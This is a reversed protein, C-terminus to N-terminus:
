KTEMLKVVMAPVGSEKIRSFTMEKVTGNETTSIDERIRPNDNEFRLSDLEGTLVWWETNGDTRVIKYYRDHITKIEELPMEIVSVFKKMKEYWEKDSEALEKNTSPRVEAKTTILTPQVGFQVATSEAFLMVARANRGNTATYKSLLSISKVTRETGFIRGVLEMFSLEQNTLNLTHEKEIYPKITDEPSLDIYAQLHLYALPNQSSIEKARAVLMDYITKTNETIAPCALMTGDPSTFLAQFATVLRGTEEYGLYSREAARVLYENLLITATEEDNGVSICASM